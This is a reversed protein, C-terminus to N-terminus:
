HVEAQLVRGEPTTMKVSRKKTTHQHMATAAQALTNAANAMTKHSEALGDALGKIHNGTQEFLRTDLQIPPKSAAETTMQHKKMELDYEMQMKERALILENDMEQKNQIAQAQQEAIATQQDFTAKEKAIQIDQQHKQQEFSMDDDHKQKELQLKEQDPNPKKQPNQAEKEMKAIAIKFQGELDKGVKFGRVGFMLMHGLLPVILPQEMGIQGAEGIFTAAAKLFELRDQRESEEDMKITSDTEIDIKFALAPKNRLLQEVEEWTPNALLEQMDDSLPPPPPPPQPAGQPQPTPKQPQGQIPNQGVPPQSQHMKFMQMAQQYQAQVQQQQMKIQQKEQATLLKVGSIQKITDITFHNAVIVCINRVADRAFTAMAEQTDSLRLTAFQSKIQQATATEVKTAGRIIDSLGTIEYLDQKVRDRAEYLTLLTDAIDKVPLLDMVGKLGGKEAFMAWQEVRILKNETGEALLREVGEASADYVGAVKIARTIAAIRSTLEDLEQAQDQYEAYDPVPIMSDNALIGYVENSPFFGDLQLPDPQWDLYDPHDKHIWSACKEMKDWLEYIIAKKIASEKKQDALGKPEYDLPIKNGIEEGFRAVLEERSLYVIRWKLYIEDRTRAWNHGFDSWHVYDTVTEEFEVIEQPEDISAGAEDVDNTVQLGDIAVESPEETKFHPVYRSWSVGRGGILRDFLASRMTQRFEEKGVFFSACRELIDSTIRGLDDDDKFRREINPKPNNGYVAPLLTQINSYLINFRANRYNYDRTNREDKYRRLIKRVREGWVQAEKEYYQIELKYREITSIPNATTKKKAM